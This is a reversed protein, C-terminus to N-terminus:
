HQPINKAKEMHLPIHRLIDKTRAEPLGSVHGEAFDTILHDLGVM